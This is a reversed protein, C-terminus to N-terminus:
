LESKITGSAARCPPHIAAHGSLSRPFTPRNVAGNGKIRDCVTMAMKEDYLNAFKLVRDSQRSARNEASWHM